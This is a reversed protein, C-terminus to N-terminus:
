GRRTAWTSRGDHGLRTTTYGAEETALRQLRIRDEHTGGRRLWISRACARARARWGAPQTRRGRALASAAAAARLVERLVLEEVLPVHDLAIKGVLLPELAGGRALHALLQLLGRLYIADKTLGGGRFVRM